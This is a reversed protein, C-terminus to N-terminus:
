IDLEYYDGKSNKIKVGPCLERIMQPTVSNGDVTLYKIYVYGNVKKPLGELSKVNCYMIDLNGNVEEPLGVFSELHTCGSMLIDRGVYDPFDDIKTIPTSYFAFDNEIHRPCGKLSTLSGTNSCGFSGGVYEPSGVLDTIKNNHVDVDGTVKKPCGKLSTISSNCCLLEGDVTEVRGLQHKNEIKLGCPLNKPLSNLNKWKTGINLFSVGEPIRIEKDEINDLDIELMFKKFKASEPYVDTVKDPLVSLTKLGRANIRVVKHEHHENTIETITVNDPVWNLKIPTNFRVWYCKKGLEKTRKKDIGYKQKAIVDGATKIWDKIDFEYWSPPNEEYYSNTFADLKIKVDPNLKWTDIGIDERVFWLCEHFDTCSSLDWGSVDFKLDHVTEGPYGCKNMLDSYVTYFLMRIQTIESTDIINLDIVKDFKGEYHEVVKLIQNKLSDEGRNTALLGNKHFKGKGDTFSHNGIADEIRDAGSKAREIGSKWMGENVPKDKVLQVFLLADDAVNSKLLKSHFPTDNCASDKCGVVWMMNKEDIMLNSEFEKTGFIHAYNSTLKSKIEWATYLEGVCGEIITDDAHYITAGKNEFSSSNKILEEIDKKTPLRWGETEIQKLIKNMNKKKFLPSVDKSLLRDAIYFSLGLDVERINLLNTTEMDERRITDSKAREVGSKWLGENVFDKYKLVHTM